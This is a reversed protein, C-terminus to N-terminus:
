QPRDRSVADLFGEGVLNFALVTLFLAVGPVVSPWWHNRVLDDTGGSIMAGWEATPLSVGLGLFSLGALTLIAWGCNLPAIVLLPRVSNPIVHRFLISRSSEGASRAAEVYGHERTSRVESRMVRVYSPANIFALVAILDVYSRGLVGAVVLALVFAPFSQIIDVMRMSVEDFWGGLYGILGGIVAGVVVAIAVSVVAIGLDIRAAYLTRAWVDMGNTDTGLLHGHVGPGTDISSFDIQTSGWHTFLPAGVGLVVIALLLLGGALALRPTAAVAALRSPRSALAADSALIEPSVSV